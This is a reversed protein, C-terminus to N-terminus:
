GIRGSYYIGYAYRKRWLVISYSVGEVFLMSKYHPANVEKSDNETLDMAIKESGGAGDLLMGTWKVGGGYKPKEYMMIACILDGGDSTVKGSYNPSTETKKQTPYLVVNLPIDLLIKRGDGEPAVEVAEGSHTSMEGEYGEEGPQIESYGARVSENAVITHSEVTTRLDKESSKERDIRPRKHKNETQTKM